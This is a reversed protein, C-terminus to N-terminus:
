TDDSAEQEEYEQCQPLFGAATMERSMKDADIVTFGKDILHNTICSKGSGIGGTIAVNIM